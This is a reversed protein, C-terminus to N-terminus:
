KKRRELKDWKDFCKDCYKQILQAGDMDYRVIKTPIDECDMCVGGAYKKIADYRLDATTKFSKLKSELEKLKESDIKISEVIPKKM